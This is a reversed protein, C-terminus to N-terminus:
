ASLGLRGEVSGAAAACPGVAAVVGRHDSGSLDVRHAGDGCWGANVLVHDIRLLLPTWKGTSTFSSWSDRMADVLEGDRLIERYGRSRDTTNLDGVVVVPRTEAAIRAALSRLIGHHEAVTAQYEGEGTTYWPRPVHLAYLVFPGAPGTVEVRLGPLDPTPRELLRLPLRSYVAIDPGGFTVERYPYAASLEPSAVDPAESVVLLDPSLALLASDSDSGDEVNAGAVTTALGPAVTDADSPLWPGIVAVVGVTLASLGPLLWRRQRLLVAAAASAAIGIVVVAPLLIALVDTLSGLGDRVLFWAWPLASLLVVPVAARRAARPGGTPVGM